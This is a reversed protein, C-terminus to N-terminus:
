KVVPKSATPKKVTRPTIALEKRVDVEAPGRVSDLPGYQKICSRLRDVKAAFNDESPPAASPAAGWIIKTGGSTILDFVFYRHEERIEARASPLIDVLHLTEWVPALQEALEAAGLVREDTWPQGVPPREVVGGIRPLYRKRIDPVDASPLHVGRRDIPVLQVVQQSVLEVVAVPRRYTLEVHVGAPYRKTIQDVSEVWPHLTFADEVVQAFAPDLVSLRGDLGTNRVVQGRVDGTIWEPLTSITIRADTLLYSEHQSIQPAFRQWVGQLGWGLCAIVGLAVLVRARQAILRSAFGLKALGQRTAPNKKKSTSSKQNTKIRVM